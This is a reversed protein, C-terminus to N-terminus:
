GLRTAVAETVVASMDEDHEACHVALRKALDAPLYITLRRLERGDSRTLVGRTAPKPSAGSRKSTQVDSRGEVFADVDATSGAKPPKRMRVTPKKM